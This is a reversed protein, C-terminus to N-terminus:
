DKSNVVIAVLVIGAILASGSVWWPPVPGQILGFFLGFFFTAFALIAGDPIHEEDTFKQNM